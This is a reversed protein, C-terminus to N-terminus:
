GRMTWDANISIRIKIGAVGGSDIFYNQIIYPNTISGNGVWGENYATTNFNSNGNISIPGHPTLAQIKMRPYGINISDLSSTVDSSITIQKFTLFPTILSLFLLLSFIYVVLKIKENKENKYKM